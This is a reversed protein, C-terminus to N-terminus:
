KLRVVTTQVATPANWALSATGGAAVGFRLYAAGGGAISVSTTAGTALAQTTLPYTGATSLAGFISTLNWSKAQYRSAAGSVDDLLLSTSWDRFLLTLDSGFVSRLNPLGTSTSNVLQYLLSEQTVSQQDLAYRLFSWTAGRTALSDNDAYPSNVSPSALFSGLRSFNAIADDNFATRYTNNSRLLTASINTLPSLGSRGYFLLEEAMHALGEDLWTEEFDTAATNVYLRRSANILHQYEHAVTSITASTVFTKSFVNGNIAGNPDPVLLYFMEAVNSAACADITATATNPFLDRAFFFGGIYYGANKPTLENVASSFYLVVHGNGDIDSPEGFAKTDIADVVDDFTTAISAYEAQTFGNSPNLTDAVVIAKRGVAMVRGARMSAKTCAENANSNLSVLSGVAVTAPIVNLRAGGSSGRSAFWSRAGSVRPTLATRERARLAAEFADKGNVSARIAGSGLANAADSAIVASADATIASVGTPQVSFASRTAPSTSSNFPILAFEAATSSGICVSTGSVTVAAGIAMTLPTSCSTGATTAISTVSFRTTLTTGLVTADIVVAGAVAGVTVQTQATGSSDTQASTASLSASGSTIAFTVTAGRIPTGATTSVKVVLSQPLTSGVIASQGDGSLATVSGPILTASATISTKDDGCASLTGLLLIFASAATTRASRSIRSIIAHM